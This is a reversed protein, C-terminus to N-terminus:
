FDKIKQKSKSLKEYFSSHGPAGIPAVASHKHHMLFKLRAM